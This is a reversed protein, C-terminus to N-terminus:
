ACSNRVVVYDNELYELYEPSELTLAPQAEPLIAVNVITVIPEDGQTLDIIIRERFVVEAEDEWDEQWVEERSEESAEDSEESAGESQEAEIERNLTIRLLAAWQAHTRNLGYNDWAQQIIDSSWINRMWFIDGYAMLLEERPEIDRVAVIRCRNGHWVPRVNCLLDDLPDNIYGAMCLINRTAMHFACYIISGDHNGMSYSAIIDNLDGYDFDKDIDMGFYEGITKGERIRNYTYLGQGANLIESINIGLHSGAANTSFDYVPQM